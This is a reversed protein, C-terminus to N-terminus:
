QGFSIICKDTGSSVISKLSLNAWHPCQNKILTHVLGEDIELENEHMKTM